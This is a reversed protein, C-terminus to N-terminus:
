AAGERSVGGIRATAMAPIPCQRLRHAPGSGRAYPSYGQQTVRSRESEHQSYSM